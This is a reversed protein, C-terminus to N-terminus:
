IRFWGGRAIPIDGGAPNKLSVLLDTPASTTFGNQRTARLRYVASHIPFRTSFNNVTIQGSWRNPVRDTTIQIEDGLKVVTRDVKVSAEQTNGRRQRWCACDVLRLVLVFAQLRYCM